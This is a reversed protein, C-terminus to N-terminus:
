ERQKSCRSVGVPSNMESVDLIVQEGNSFLLLTLLKCLLLSMKKSPEVEMGQEMMVTPYVVDPHKSWYEVLRAACTEKMVSGLVGDRIHTVVALLMLM